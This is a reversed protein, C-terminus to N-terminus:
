EEQLNKIKDIKIEAYEIYRGDIYSEYPEWKDFFDNLEQMGKEISPILEPSIVEFNPRMGKNGRVGSDFFEKVLTEKEVLKKTNDKIERINNQLVTIATQLAETCENRLRDKTEREM